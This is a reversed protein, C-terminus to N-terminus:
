GAKDNENVGENAGGGGTNLISVQCKPNEYSHIKAADRFEHEEDKINAAPCTKLYWCKISGGWNKCKCLTMNLICEWNCTPLVERGKDPLIKNMELYQNCKRNGWWGDTKIGGKNKGGAALWKLPAFILSRERLFEPSDFISETQKCQVRLAAVSM